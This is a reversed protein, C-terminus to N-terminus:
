ESLAIIMPENTDDWEITNRVSPVLLGVTIGICAVVLLVEVFTSARRNTLPLNKKM